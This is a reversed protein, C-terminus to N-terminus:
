KGMVVKGLTKELETRNNLFDYVSQVYQLRASLLQSESNNMEIMTGSGVEYRKQSIILAKNANNVSEKTSVVQEAAREIGNLSNTIALELQRQIHERQIDLNELQLKSQRTKTLRGGGDWINWSFALTLASSGFYPAKFPNFEDPMASYGGTLQLALTPIYGLKNIKEALVLQRRQSDLQRLTSNDALSTDSKLLMLDNFLDQEYDSLKGEFKLPEAIDLGMLIKLQMEALKLGNQVTILQPKLNSLQVEATLKDFESVMGQDYMARTNRANQESVAYTALFVDYSDRALLMDYYAKKVAAITNVKSERAQEKALDIQEENLSITKWLQPAVLPLATTATLSTNYPRGMK